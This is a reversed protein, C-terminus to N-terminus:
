LARDLWRTTFLHEIGRRALVDDFAPLDRLRRAVSGTSEPTRGLVVATGLLEPARQGLSYLVQPSHTTALVQLGRARVAQILVEVLLDIRAPHLGREIEELCILTGEPMSWLAAILGLFRLTGDSAAQASIKSGGDEVLLFLTDGTTPVEIFELDVVTPACLESLWDLLDQKRGQDVLNRLVASLNEGEPGLVRAGPQSYERMRATMLDVTQSSLLFKRLATPDPASAAFEQPFPPVLLVSRRGEFKFHDPTGTPKYDNDVVTFYGDGNLDNTIQAGQGTTENLLWEEGLELPGHTGQGWRTLNLGYTWSLGGISFGAQPQIANGGRHVLEASGGRLGPWVERGVRQVGQTIEQISFGAALGQFLRITEILNSKGSANAGVLLTLESLGIEIDGNAFGKFNEPSIWTLM